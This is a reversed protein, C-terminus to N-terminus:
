LCLSGFCSTIVGTGRCTKCSAVPMLSTSIVEGECDPCPFEIEADNDGPLLGNYASMIEHGDRSLIAGVKRRTAKSETAWNRANAMLTHDYKKFTPMLIGQEKYAKIGLLQKSTLM